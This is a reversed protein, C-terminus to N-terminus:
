DLHKRTRGYAAPDYAHLQRLAETRGALLTDSRPEGNFCGWLHDLLATRTGSLDTTPMDLTFPVLHVLLRSAASAALPDFVYIRSSLLKFLTKQIPGTVM